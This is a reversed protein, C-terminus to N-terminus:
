GNARLRSGCLKDAVHRVGGAPDGDITRLFALPGIGKKVVGKRTTEGAFPALLDGLGRRETAVHGPVHNGAGDENVVEHALLDGLAHVGNNIKRSTEVRPGVTHLQWGRQFPDLDIEGVDEGVLFRNKGIFLRDSGELADAEVKRL